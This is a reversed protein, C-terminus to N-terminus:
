RVDGGAAQGNWRDGLRRLARDLDAGLRASSAGAAPTLARVVLDAHPPLSELRAAMLHRLRRKVRNRTVASGVRKSVVFGARVPRSEGMRGHVVLTPTPIRYGRRSTASMDRSSRLRHEAPLM